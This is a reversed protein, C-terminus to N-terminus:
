RSHGVDVAEIVLVALGGHAHLVQETPLARVQGLHGRHETQRHRRPERDGGVRAAIVHSTAPRPPEVGLDLLVHLRELPGHALLEAIRAVRQEDAHAGAGLEGHRPHHVRDEVEAEVVVRDLAQGLLRAVLPERVVRVAAEDRHVPADHEVDRGLLELLRELRGLLQRVGRVVRLDRGVQQAVENARVLLDHLPVGALRERLVRM